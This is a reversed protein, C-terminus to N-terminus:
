PFGINKEVVENRLPCVDDDDGKSCYWCDNGFTQSIREVNGRAVITFTM